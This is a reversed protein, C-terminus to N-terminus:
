QMQRRGDSGGLKPNDLLAIAVRPQLDDAVFTVPCPLRTNGGSGKWLGLPGDCAPREDLVLRDRADAHPVLPEMGLLVEALWFCTQLAPPTLM